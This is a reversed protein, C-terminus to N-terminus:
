CCRKSPYNDMLVSKFSARSNLCNPYQKLISKLDIMDAGRQRGIYKEILEKLSHKDNVEIVCESAGTFTTLVNKDADGGIAIGVRLSNQFCEYRELEELPEMYSDTANSFVIIIPENHINFNFKQLDEALVRLACGFDNAGSAHLDNWIVDGIYVAGSETIWSAGDSFHIVAVKIDEIDEGLSSAIDPLDVTIAEEMASNMAGIKDGAMQKGTDVLYYITRMKRQNDSQRM